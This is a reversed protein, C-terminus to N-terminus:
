NLEVSKLVVPVIPRDNQDTKVNNIADVVDTGATVKGFVTHKTDLFNNNVANIFFQSGNTNPGANAMAITYANNHNNATIEDDFKYGPGGMGWSDKKSDDKSFPDGGQNMFGKIVRHFKTNDYLGEKALKVFNDVTKPTEPNFEISIDGMSTRLTAKMIKNNEGVNNTEVQGQLNGVDRANPNISELPASNGLQDNLTGDEVQALESNKQTFAWVGAGIVILVLVIALYKNM